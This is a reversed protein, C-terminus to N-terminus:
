WRTPNLCNKGQTQEYLWYTCVCIYINYVHVYMYIYTCIYITSRLGIRIGYSAFFSHANFYGTASRQLFFPLEKEMFAMILPAVHEDERDLGLPEHIQQFKRIIKKPPTRLIPSGWTGMAQMWAQLVLHDHRSPHNPTCSKDSVKAV